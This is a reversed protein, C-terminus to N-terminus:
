DISLLASQKATCRPGSKEGTNGAHGAREMADETILATLELDNVMRDFKRQLLDLSNQSERWM